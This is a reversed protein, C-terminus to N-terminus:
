SRLCAVVRRNLWDEEVAQVRVPLPRPDTARSVSFHLQGHGLSWTATVVGHCQHQERITVTAGSVAYSGLCDPPISWRM